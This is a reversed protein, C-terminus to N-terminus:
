GEIVYSTMKYTKKQTSASSTEATKTPTQKSATKAPTTKASTTTKTANAAPTTTKSATKSTAAAKQAPQSVQITWTKITESEGDSVILEVTKEGPELYIRQMKPLGDISSFAAFRWTYTLNDGDPDYADIDFVIPEQVKAKRKTVSANTIIPARNSNIVIVPVALESSAGGGDTATFKITFNQSEERSSINFSPAWEFTGNSFDAGVPLGEATLEVENGEPDEAEPIILLTQNEAITQPSISKFVPKRNVDNIRVNVTQSDNSYRDSATIVIKYTGSDNYNTQWIGSNGVPESITFDVRDHDYELAAPVIKILDGEDAIVDELPLLKPQRNVNEVKISVEQKTSLNKGSAIFTITFEEYTGYYIDSAYIQNLLKNLTDGPKQVTEYNTKFEFRNGAFTAGEPINEASFKVADNDPDVAELTFSVIENEKIAADDIKKFLPARDIDSVHIKFTKTDALTRDSATVTITYDGADEYGTQWEKDDGVPESVTYKIEDGDPDSASFDIAANEGEDIGIDEIPELVPPRNINNVKLAWEKSVAEKGDSIEVEVDYEGSSSFDTSHTYTSDNSVEKGDLKWTYTLTDGDKDEAEAEFTIEKGEDVVAEAKPFVYNIAPPQNTEKVTIKFQKSASHQGDSATVTITHEGADGYDTEWLGDNGVPESITYTIPDNEEDKAKPEIKVTETESVVVDDLQELVPPWNAKKVKLLLQQTTKLKGDSASINIIYDGYDGYTTQWQGSSNLPNSFSYILEDNDLDIAKLKLNVLENENVEIVPLESFVFRFSLLISIVVALVIASKYAGKM